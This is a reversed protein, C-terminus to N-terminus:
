RGDVAEKKAKGDALLAELAAEDGEALAKRYEEMSAMFTDMEELLYERNEMCLEAWMKPNLWAVRTMDRYSGASFGKHLGASPSKIFGNSILHPMQSTFAIMRDHAEATTISYGAFGAPDLLKKAKDLLLIDDRDSPVLVMPQGDYMGELAYKFGSVQRGAMPHGGIYAFGYEAAVPFLASCVARKTGCCDIVVPKPGIHPAMKRVYDIAAQPYVCVLVLDCSGINEATLEETIDGSIFAFDMTHKDVDYGLVEWRAQTYAKAFSGGILGLGVIGARM